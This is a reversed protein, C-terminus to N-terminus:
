AAPTGIATNIAVSKVISGRTCKDISLWERGSAELMKQLVWLTKSTASRSLRIRCTYRITVIFTEQYVIRYSSHMARFNYLNAGRMGNPFFLENNQWDWFQFYTAAARTCGLWVYSSSGLERPIAVCTLSQPKLSM